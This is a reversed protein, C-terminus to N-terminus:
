NVIAEEFIEIKVIVCDFHWLDSDVEEGIEPDEFILYVKVATKGLEKIKNYSEWTFATAPHIVDGNIRMSVYYSKTVRNEYIYLDDIELEGTIVTAKEESKEALFRRAEMKSLSVFKICCIVLLFTAPIIPIFNKWIASDSYDFVNKRKIIGIFIIVLFLISMLAVVSLLICGSVTNNADRSYKFVVM